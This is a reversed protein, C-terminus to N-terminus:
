EGGDGDDAGASWERVRALHDFDSDYLKVFAPATRSAYPWSPNDFRAILALLGEHAEAVLRDTEGPLIVTTEGAPNRGSIRVYTLDGPSPSGLNEFGGRSAILATLTLQPSFGSEVLRKTPPPGTKFDLIHARGGTIEIRDANASLRFSGGPTDLVASGELEFAIVPDGVRRGREWDVVWEGARRALPRERALEAPPMGAEILAQIYLDHFESGSRADNWGRGFSELAKHIATGRIRVDVRENPRNMARLRLIYQAYIAYPDRVLAEIRTVALGRPRASVPPCPAPRPAPILDPPPAVLPSDLAAAWAMLDPRGPLDVQAGRALTELRWLWRSAVAPSGGRRESRLLFVEPASAAQAFDHAALGIKREPSPLGLATRMPRSLFPDVPAGAPWVGEELGALIMRDPRVLRAEIAGLIRIRPYAQGGGRVTEGDILRELLSAFGAADMPPLGEAEGLLGAILGALSGGAPGGWLAGPAGTEDAALAELSLALGEAAKAASAPGGDFAARAPALATYLNALLNGAAIREEEPPPKAGRESDAVRPALRRQLAAFDPLRPGRLAHKELADRAFTFVEAAMGLRCHSSKLVGLLAVPDAHDTVLRAVQRALVAAPFSALDMGASSDAEVGWRSLRASVRRALAIDPTILAATKDPTELVERLLLAALSATEEEHRGTVVALGRLGETIPDVEEAATEARISAIDKLWDKTSDAPRLSANILRRRWRGHMSPVGSAPWEVVGQRGVKARVEILRKMAGQPHQDEVNSWAAEELDLDLGPLVVCGRPAKAIVALLDGTAPVTGTSGAAILLHKPPRADWTEALRRLLRTRREAVDIVGLEALRMPWAALAKKLFAASKAWHLAHDAEVLDDLASPDDIEEIQCSDLFQALADAYALTGPADLEVGLLSEHAKVIGALEFRRRWPSISPPLDLAIDGPEFPPEGDDLDGLPRIQPLLAAIGGGVTLFAHALERGGRRTPPLILADAIADPGMGALEAMVGRALDEAFPRHAPITFWRPGAQDFLATM